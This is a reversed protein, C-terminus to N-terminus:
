ITGDQYLYWFFGCDYNTVACFFRTVLRHSRRMELVSSRSEYHKWLMGYGEERMCVANTMVYPLGFDDAAPIDFYTIAGLCDCGLQLQNVM